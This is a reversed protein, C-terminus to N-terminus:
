AHEAVERQHQVDQEGASLGAADVVEETGHGTLEARRSEEDGPSPFRCMPKVFLAQVDGVHRARFAGECYALYYDWMRIFREDYGLGRVETLRARFARRWMSLTTAYHPGIDELNWLRLDTRDAVTDLMARVGLLCSGPFIYKKLFDRRRAAAEFFQDRIVIAQFLAAGEPKLLRSCTEFYRGHNERGVAEAMEISVLKDFSGALDRYDKKLVTIRDKLGASYVLDTVYRHQAESVTTTTVRCAYRRAAHLALAGWGSGIELLHEGPSLRLRRCARDIKERQAEELTEAGNEFIGSSYSMSPDLFLSFFDDGLDYHALINRRSGARTNREMWYAARTLPRLALAIPGEIRCLAGMNVTFIEVLRSLDDTEWLGDIYAEAVGVGGGFAIAAFLGEDKVRIVASPEGVGAEVLVDGQEGVIRVSGWNLRELARAAIRRGLTSLVGPLPRAASAVARRFISEFGAARPFMSM